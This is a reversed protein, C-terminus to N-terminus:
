IISVPRGLCGIMAGIPLPMFALLDDNPPVISNGPVLSLVAGYLVEALVGSLRPDALPNQFLALM